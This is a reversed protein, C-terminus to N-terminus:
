QSPLNDLFTDTNRVLKVGVARKGFAAGTKAYQSNSGIALGAPVDPRHLIADPKERLM